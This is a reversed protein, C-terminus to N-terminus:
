RYPHVRGSAAQLRPRPFAREAVRAARYASVVALAEAEQETCTCANSGFLSIHPHERM